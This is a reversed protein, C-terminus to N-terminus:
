LQDGRQPVAAALPREKGHHVPRVRGHAGTVHALGDGARQDGYLGDQGALFRHAFEVPFVPRPVFEGAQELGHSVHLPQGGPDPRLAGVGAVQDRELGGQVHDRDDLLLEHVQLGPQGGSEPVPQLFEPGQRLFELPGQHVIRGERQRLAPEDARSVVLVEVVQAHDTRASLAPDGFQLLLLALAGPDLGELHVVVANEAVVDLDGFRVQVPQFALVDALLGHTVRLPEDRRLEFLVLLLDQTGLLLDAFQFVGEEEFQPLFHGRTQALDLAVRPRDRLQVEQGRQRFQGYLVVVHGRIDHVTRDQFYVVAAM